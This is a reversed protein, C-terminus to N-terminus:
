LKRHRAAANRDPFVTSAQTLDVTSEIELNYEPSEWGATTGKLNSEGIPTTLRL